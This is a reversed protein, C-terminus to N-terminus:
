RVNCLYGSPSNSMVLRSDIDSDIEFDSSESVYQRTATKPNRGLGRPRLRYTQELINEVVTDSVTAYHGKSVLPGYVSVEDLVHEHTHNPDMLVMVRDQATLSCTIHSVISTDTPWGRILKIETKFVVDNVADVVGDPFYLDIGLIKRGGYLDMLTAFLSIGSGWSDGTEIVVTPQCRLLVDQIALVDKPLQLIPLVCWAWQYFDGHRDSEV